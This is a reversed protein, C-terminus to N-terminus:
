ETLLPVLVATNLEFETAALVLDGTKNTWNEGLDESFYVQDFNLAYIQNGNYPNGSTAHTAENTADTDYGTMTAAVWTSGGNRSVYLQDGSNITTHECWQLVLDSDQTWTEIAHRKVRVWQAVNASVDSITAGSDTSKYARGTGAAPDYSGLYFVNGDSNNHFPCHLSASNGVITPSSVNSWTAGKDDSRWIKDDIGSALYLRLSNNITHPVIDVAGADHIHAFITDLVKVFTWNTGGNETYVCWIETSTDVPVFYAIYNQQNPSGILKQRVATTMATGCGTTIAADSLVLSWSPSALNLDTSKYVGQLTAIYGTTTPAWPDLIFDKFADTAGPEYPSIEVWTPSSAALSTTRMLREATMVYCKGTGTVATTTPGPNWDYVDAPPEYEPEPIGSGGDDTGPVPDTVGATGSTEREWQLEVTRVVGTREHQYRISIEHVLGRATTFALGRQAALAATITLQVWTMNAPEIDLDDGQALTVSFHSEPANLRAYRHGAQSNLATQTIALQEGQDQAMEGQAPADGPAICFIPTIATTSAVIANERLWHYRPSRQHTYRIDSWEAGTLTTQVTATRSGSDILMPDVKTQLQGLTNCGLIYNPVLTKAERAVQDWMSAGDNSRIVFPYSSGTATNTWDALDLATSHWHLLYHLLKDKNPTSMQTWKTPATNTEVSQPFGPLTDLKGAVDLCNLITDKLTGTRQADITAPDTHHWGIFLMNTRDSASAPEGDFIMVLTGDPYTTAAISQRVRISIQQGQPTIRHSEIQWYPITTDSASDRAYIPCRTIHTKGNSDTVSLSVWRFGAPFTATPSASASTGVTFTGDAIDWLYTSITAGDAVAFSNTGVFAVTIIGASITAAVGPGCNAVPPPTTTFSGVAIDSDKYIVGSSDIFQTKSWVRFDNIVTIYQNDSVNLEGDRIGQSSRGVYLITSTPTKRVRQRGLDDLGAATGLLVTQGVKIDTFAGTTVTDYTIQDLPYTATAQNVRAAFITTPSLLYLRIAM